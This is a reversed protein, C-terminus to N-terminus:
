FTFYDRKLASTLTTGRPCRLVRFPSPASAAPGHRSITDRFFSPTASVFPNSGEIGNGTHVRLLP